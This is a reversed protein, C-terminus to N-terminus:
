IPRVMKGFRFRRLGRADRRHIPGRKPAGIDFGGTWKGESDLSAGIKGSKAVIKGNITVGIDSSAYVNIGLMAIIAVILLLLRKM